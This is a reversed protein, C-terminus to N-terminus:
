SYGRTIDDDDGHARIKLASKLLQDADNKCCQALGLAPLLMPLTYIEIVQTVLPQDALEGEEGGPHQLQDQAM